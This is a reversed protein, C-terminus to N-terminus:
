AHPFRSSLPFCCDAVDGWLCRRDAASHRCSSGSPLDFLRIADFETVLKGTWDELVETTRADDAVAFTLDLDSWRDGTGHALSGITAGAVVRQDSEAWALVRSSVQQRYEVSFM